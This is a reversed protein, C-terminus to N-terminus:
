DDFKTPEEEDTNDLGAVDADKLVPLIGDRYAKIRAKAETDLKEGLEFVLRGYDIGGNSKEKELSMKTIADSYKVGGSALRMFYTKAAKMSTPPLTLVVPLLSGPLLIFLSAKNKCAKGAGDSGWQNFPCKNCAGGPNGEGFMTDNSFCDPAQGGDSAAFDKEWYVNFNKKYIIVGEIEKSAISGESLDPLEWSLSGGSPVKIKDLDSPQLKEGGLNEQIVESLEQPDMQAIAYENVLTLEKGKSM